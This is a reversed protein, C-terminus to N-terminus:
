PQLEEVRVHLSEPPADFYRLLAPCLWGEQGDLEYWAGGADDRSKVAALSGPFPEASFVARFPEHVNEDTRALRARLVGGIMQPVGMVFPERRLDRDEDDFAWTAVDAVWYPAIVHLQNALGDAEESAKLQKSAV